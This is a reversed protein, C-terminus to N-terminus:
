SSARKNLDLVATGRAQVLCGVKQFISPGPAGNPIKGPPYDNCPSRVHCHSRDLKEIRRFSVAENRGFAAALVHEHVGGSNFRRSHARQVFALLYGEVDLRIRAAGEEKKSPPL